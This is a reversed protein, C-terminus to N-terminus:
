QNAESDGLHLVVAADRWFRAPDELLGAFGHMGKDQSRSQQAGIGRGSAGASSSQM